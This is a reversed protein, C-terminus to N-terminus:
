TKKPATLSELRPTSNRLAPEPASSLGHAEIELGKNTSTKTKKHRNASVLSISWPAHHPLNKSGLRSLTSLTIDALGPEVKIRSM